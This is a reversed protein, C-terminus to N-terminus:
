PSKTEPVRWSRIFWKFCYFRKDSNKQPETM